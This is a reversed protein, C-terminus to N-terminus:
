SICCFGKDRRLVGSKCGPCSIGELKFCDAIDASCCKPCEEVPERSDIKFEHGCSLCIHPVDNGICKDVKSDPHYAYKKLGKSTLYYPNGDSWAEKAFGCNNCVFRVCEAM